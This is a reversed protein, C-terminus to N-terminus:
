RCSPRLCAAWTFTAPDIPSMLFVKIYIILVLFDYFNQMTVGYSLAKGSGGNKIKFCNKLFNYLHGSCFQWCFTKWCFVNKLILCISHVKAERNGFKESLYNLMKPVVRYKPSVTRTRLTHIIFTKLKRLLPRQFIILQNV